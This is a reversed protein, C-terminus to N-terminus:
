RASRGRSRRSRCGTSAWGVDDVVGDGRHAFLDAVVLHQQAQGAADVGGHHRRQQVPGDAVLEGAHEDVVAQQAEALAVLDHGGEGACMPTRTIRTSASSCNRVPEGADRVRLLLALDDAVGEDLDEVLLGGLMSPTRQSAWPVM